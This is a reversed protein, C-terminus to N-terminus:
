SITCAQGWRWYGLSAIDYRLDLLEGTVALAFVALWPVISKLSKHFALAAVFQTTLGVYIHLADKSLGTSTVIALKISQVLTTQM